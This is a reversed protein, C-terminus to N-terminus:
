LSTDAGCYTISNKFDLVLSPLGAGSFGGSSHRNRRLTRAAVLFRRAGGSVRSPQQQLRGFSVVRRKEFEQLADADADWDEATYIVDPIGRRKLLEM